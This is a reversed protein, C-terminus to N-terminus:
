APRRAHDPEQQVAPRGLRFAPRARRQGGPLTGNLQANIGLLKGFQASDLEMGFTTAGDPSLIQASVTPPQNIQLFFAQKPTTLKTLDIGLSMNMDFGARLTVDTSGHVVLDFDGLSLKDALGLSSLNLSLDTSRVVQFPFNILLQGGDTTFTIGDGLNTSLGGSLGNAAEVAQELGDLTPLQGNAKGQLFPQLYTQVPGVLRDNLMGGVDLYDSLSKHDGSGDAKLPLIPIPTSFPASDNLNQAFSGVDALGQSLANEASSLLHQLTQYGAGSIVPDAELNTPDSWTMSVPLGQSLGAGGVTLDANFTLNTGTLGVDALDLTSASFDTPRLLGNTPNGLADAQPAHLKLTFQADSTLSADDLGVTLLGYFGNAQVDGSVKLNSLTIEPDPNDATDIYFGQADAGFILHLDVDASLTITGNVAFTGGLVSLDLNATADLTKHVAHAATSPHIQDTLDVLNGGNVIYPPNRRVLIREGTLSSPRRRASGDKGKSHGDRVPGSLLRL